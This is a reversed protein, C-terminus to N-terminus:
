NSASQAGASSGASIDADANDPAAPPSAMTDKVTVAAATNDEGLVVELLAGEKIDDITGVTEESSSEVTIATDDTVTFTITDTGAAFTKGGGPQGGEPQQKGDSQGGPQQSDPQQGSPQSGSPAQEADPSPKSPTSSSGSDAPQTPEGTRGQGGDELTGLLLTITKDSISQVQGIIKSSDPESPGSTNASNSAASAASASGAGSSGCGALAMAMLGTVCLLSLVSKLKM